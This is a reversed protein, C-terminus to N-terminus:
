TTESQGTNRVRPDALSSKYNFVGVNSSRKYLPNYAPDIFHKTNHISQLSSKEKQFRDRNERSKDSGRSLSEHHYLCAFPTWVIRFGANHARICYDVDNYAVAFNTEDWAGVTDLCDGSILMVAGTVCTMSNRVKLRAMPGDEDSNFKYYWHGALGSMGVLVGAHQITDDAYLLKAGVIGANDYALCSVMERLWDDEIVEVDNNLILFHDCVLKNFGKNVSRSFNFPEEEVLAEFNPYKASMADYFDLVDKDTTGNDVVLVEFNPYDTKEFVDYVIKKILAPSNKNPIIIGIKPWNGNEPTFSVKHLEPNLAAGVEIEYGKKPYHKTLTRRAADLARELFRHSFSQPIQRWWYAPFPIHLVPSPATKKLYRLLMDYDQSGDLEPNFEGVEKLKRRKFLSFHNIYNMGSLLIPDYEPKLFLNIAKLEDDIILEDTYAFQAEPHENLAKYIVKFANPAILDDHDLFGVWEGRCHEVGKNLAEAIGRNEESSVLIVRDNTKCTELWRLTEPNSSGDNSLILEVHKSNQNEFSEYLDSLYREPTNYVPVVLSLWPEGSATSTEKVNALEVGINRYFIEIQKQFNPGVVRRTWRVIARSANLLKGNTWLQNILDM